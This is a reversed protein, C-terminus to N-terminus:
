LSREVFSGIIVDDDRGIILNRNNMLYGLM